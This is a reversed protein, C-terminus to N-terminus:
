GLQFLFAKAAAAASVWCCLGLLIPKFGSAKMHKINTSLGVGAMATVIGFKGTLVIIEAAEKPISLFTNAVTAAAFFIIFKPFIKILSFGSPNEHKQKYSTYVALFLTVPVILLTRTLKVVAAAQLATNNGAAGSWSSGAAVVSSTDNIAAGAWIGFDADSMGTFRGIVPFVFVAAINFLFIISISGTIDEDKARIVPAAAAIASGGCIATGVGVLTTIGSKLKLIKGMIFATIFAAAAAATIILISQSGLQAAHFLDMNFGLLVVSYQLLKKSINKIGDAPHIDKFLKFKIPKAFIGACIIGILVATVPAGAVPFVGGIFWSPVAVALCILAPIFIHKLM